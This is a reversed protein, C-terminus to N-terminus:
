AAHQTNSSHTTTQTRTKHILLLHDLLTLARSLQRDKILHHVQRMTALLPKPSAGHRLWLRAQAQVTHLTIRLRAYTDIM